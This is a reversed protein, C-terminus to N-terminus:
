RATILKDSGPRTFEVAFGDEIYRAVRGKVKGMTIVEGIAPRSRTRLAAGTLSIDIVVFIASEGNDRRLERTQPAVTRRPSRTHTRPLPEGILHFYLKEATRAQKGPSCNFQIGSSDKSSWVISGAFRDFSEAYLVVQTGKEPVGCADIRAGGPSLDTLRCDIEAQTSPVFLKGRLTIKERRYGRRELPAPDTEASMAVDAGNSLQMERFPDIM